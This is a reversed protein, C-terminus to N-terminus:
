VRERCSARGIEPRRARTAMGKPMYNVSGKVEGTQRHIYGAYRYITISRSPLPFVDHPMFLPRAALPATMPMVLDSSCVDSSWDGTWRTHRRRSSGGAAWRSRCEKGVRREESRLGARVLLWGKRCITSLGRSRGRKVTYIDLMVIYRSVAPLYPFYTM